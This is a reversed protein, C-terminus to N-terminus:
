SDTDKDTEKPKDDKTRQITSMDGATEGDRLRRAVIIFRRNGIDSYCTSLTLLKDGYEVDVDTEFLQKQRVNEVYYDFTKKDDLEEMNWYTFDEYWSGGTVSCAFIVYDYDKYNSSLEIFQAKDIFKYDGYYNRLSGFMTLNLMNHGYIVINESQASEVGGFNDRYDMFLEGAFEYDRKMNHHLYFDNAVYAQGGYYPVGEPIEGPDKFVPYDVYTNDIKIWGAIDKNQKLLMKAKETVGMESPTYDDYVPITTPAETVAATQPIDIVSVTPVSDEVSKQSYVMAGLGAALLLTACASVIKVAKKM